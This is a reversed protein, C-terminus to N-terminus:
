VHVIIAIAKYIGAQKVTQGEDEIARKPYTTHLQFPQFAYEPLATVIFTRVDDITHAENFEGILQRGTPLRFQIQGYPKSKDVNVESQAKEKLDDAEKESVKPASSQGQDDDGLTVLEPVLGGLRVGGSAFAGPKPAVFPTMRREMHVDIMRGPYRANLEPPTQGMQMAMLFSRNAPDDFTRLPGDEVSFGNQWLIVRVNVPGSRDEERPTAPQQAVPDENTGLRFASGQFTQGRGGSGARIEAAQEETLEEAGARRVADFLRQARRDRDNPGLVQQGSHESGGVFFGQRGEDSDESDSPQQGPNNEEEDVGLTNIRPM